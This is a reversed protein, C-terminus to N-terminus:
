YDFRLPSNYPRVIDSSVDKDHYDFVKEAGRTHVLENNKPSCTTIPVLGASTSM